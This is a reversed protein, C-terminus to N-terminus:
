GVSEVRERLSMWEKTHLQRRQWMLPDSSAALLCTQFTQTQIGCGMRSWQSFTNFPSLSIKNGRFVGTIWSNGRERWIRDRDDSVFGAITLLSICFIRLRFDRLSNISFSLFFFFLFSMFSQCTVKERNGDWKNTRQKKKFSSVSLRKREREPRKAWQRENRSSDSAKELVLDGMESGLRDVSKTETHIVRDFGGVNGQYRWGSNLLRPGTDRSKKQDRRVSFANLCFSSVTGWTVPSSCTGNAFHDENANPENKAKGWCRKTIKFIWAKIHPISICFPMQNSSNPMKSGSHSPPFVSQITIATISEWKEIELSRLFSPFTEKKCLFHLKGSLECSERQASICSHIQIFHIEYDIDHLICLIIIYHLITYQM